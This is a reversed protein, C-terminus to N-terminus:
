PKSAKIKLRLDESAARLKEATDVFEVYMDDTIRLVSEASAILDDIPCAEAPLDGVDTKLYVVHGSECKGDWETVLDHPDVKRRKTMAVIKSCQPCRGVFRHTNM